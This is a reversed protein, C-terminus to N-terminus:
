TYPPGSDGLKGVKSLNSYRSKSINEVALQPLRQNPVQSNIVKMVMAM